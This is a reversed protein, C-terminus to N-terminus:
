KSITKVISKAGEKHLFLITSVLEATIYSMNKAVKSLLISKKGKGVYDMSALNKEKYFIDYKMKLNIIYSVENKAPNIIKDEVEANLNINIKYYKRWIINSSIKYYEGKKYEIDIFYLTDSFEYMYKLKMYDGKIKYMSITTKELATIYGDFLENLSKKYSIYDYKKTKKFLSELINDFKERNKNLYIDIILELTGLNGM